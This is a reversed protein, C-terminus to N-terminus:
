DAVRADCRARATRSLRERSQEPARPEVPSQQNAELAALLNRIVTLMNRLEDAGVRAAIRDAWPHQVLAIRRIAWYGTETCALLKARRHDPNPRYEGLKREVLLNAIRLVAQRTLGMRRGIAAVTRPEDLIGGLVQWHAATLEGEAALDRAAEILRANLRFTAVVVDTLVDGAETRPPPEPWAARPPVAADREDTTTIM